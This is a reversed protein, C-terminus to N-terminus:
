TGSASSSEPSTTTQRHRPEPFGRKRCRRSKQPQQQRKEFLYATSAAPSEHHSRAYKRQAVDHRHRNIAVQCFLPIKRAAIRSSVSHAQQHAHGARLRRVGAQVAMLTSSGGRWTVAPVIRGPCGHAFPISRRWNGRRPDSSPRDHVGHALRGAESSLDLAALNRREAAAAMGIRGEHLM